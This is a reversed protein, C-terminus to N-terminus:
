QEKEQYKRPITRRRRKRPKCGSCTWLVKRKKLFAESGVIGECSYHFWRDCSDCAISNDDAQAPNKECVDACIGCPYDVKVNPTISELKDLMTDMTRKVARERVIGEVKRSSLEPLVGKKFFVELDPLLSNIYNMDLNIRDVFFNNSSSVTRVAFDCWTMGTTFLQVQVQAYYPHQRKLQIVGNENTLFGVKQSALDTVTMHRHTYPNKIELVGTCCQNCSVIGDPSAAIYPYKLSVWLGTEKCSVDKHKRCRHKALYQKRAIREHNKGWSMAASQPQGYYGMVRALHSHGTVVGHKVSSACEGAVSATIRGRRHDSWLTSSAQQLTEQALVEQQHRTINLKDVLKDSTVDQGNRIIDDFAAEVTLAPMITQVTEEDYCVSINPIQANPNSERKAHVLLGCNGNTVEALMDLNFATLQKAQRHARLRPDFDSRYIRSNLPLQESVDEKVGVIKINKVFQPKHITEGHKPPKGWVQKQSTSSKNKGEEM